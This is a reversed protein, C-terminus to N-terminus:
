RMKIPYLSTESIAISIIMVGLALYGIKLAESNLFGQYAEFIIGVGAGLLIVTIIVGALVEFKYHGYPHEKDEPKRSIIIGFYSVASSFIDVFSHFGDALIAASNSLVGVTIKGGALLMNALISLLAVKEKM